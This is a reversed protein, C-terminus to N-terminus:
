FIRACSQRLRHDWSFSRRRSLRTPPLSFPARFPSATQKQVPSTYPLPRTVPGQPGRLLPVNAERVRVSEGFDEELIDFALRTAWPGYCAHMHGELAPPPAPKSDARSRKSMTPPNRSSKRLSRRPCSGVGPWGPRELRKYSM